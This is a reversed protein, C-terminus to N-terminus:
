IFELEFHALFVEHNVYDSLAHKQLLGWTDLELPFQM